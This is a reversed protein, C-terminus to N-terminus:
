RFIAIWLCMVLWPRWFNRCFCQLSPHEKELSRIKAYCMDLHPHEMKHNCTIKLLSRNNSTSSLLAGEVPAPPRYTRKRKHTAFQLSRHKTEEAPQMHMHMRSGGKSHQLYDNAPAGESPQMYHTPTLRRFTTLSWFSLEKNLNSTDTLTIRKFISPSRYNSGESPQM